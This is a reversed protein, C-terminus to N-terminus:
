AVIFLERGLSPAENLSDVINSWHWSRHRYAFVDNRDTTNWAILGVANNVSILMLGTTFADSRFSYFTRLFYSDLMLLFNGFRIFLHTHWNELLCPLFCLYPVSLIFFFLFLFIQIYFCPSNLMFAPITLM